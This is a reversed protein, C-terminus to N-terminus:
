RLCAAVVAHIGQPEMGQQEPTIKSRLKQVSRECMIDDALKTMHEMLSIPRIKRKEHIPAGAPWGGPPPKKAGQGAPELVVGLWREGLAKPLGSVLMTLWDKLAKAGGPRRAM